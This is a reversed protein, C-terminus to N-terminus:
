LVLTLAMYVSFVEPHLLTPVYVWTTISLLLTLSQTASDILKHHTGIASESCTWSWMEM